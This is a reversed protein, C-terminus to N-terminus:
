EGELLEVAMKAANQAASGPPPVHLPEVLKLLNGRMEVLHGLENMAELVSGVLRRVNGAWPMLEPVVRWGALINLLSLHETSLFRGFRGFTHYLTRSFLGTKYFVVMPVGFYATQVTVTGSGVVAFHSRALVEQAAQPGVVIEIRPSQASSSSSSSSVSSAAPLIGAPRSPLIGEGCRVGEGRPVGEARGLAQRIREAGAESHAAFACRSHPWRRLITEAVEVLPRTHGALEAPRSGPLLAVQWAGEFWARALDPLPRPRQPHDDFIPHGVFTAAVGRARLYEEEFPLICAVRDTLRALKKVRWPAWAWVQPAVYYLVPVGARKAAAAMHWNFAPSDVPICLDPRLRAMAKRVRRITRYYYALRPLVSGLMSASCTLDALVECGEAAMREGAVGVFRARPAMARIARILNAAHQDGSAEAASLFITVPRDLV